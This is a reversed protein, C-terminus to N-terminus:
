QIFIFERTNLLAWILNGCGTAKDDASMIEQIALARDDAGPRRSLVALYVVDIAERPAHSTVEDYIVSGQELMAHTIPGNFMALIQPITAVTRGGEITERDSQGFQRLFHGLPLPTPLESARVLELGRYGCVQMMRRKAPGKGYHGLFRELGRDVDALSATRLDVNMIGAVEATTPRQISWPNRAVLTLISDWLQEATMRKLAPGPFRFPAASMTDHLVARRQYVDTSVVIRVFERLDFDLRLMEDTLHELLMPDSAPNDEKFDDGPEVLGVGMLKKWLRNAITRAFQRNDRAVVWAAFQQRGDARRVAEPVEGWLVKPSVATLPKADDYQYDHPLLLKKDAFAVNTVNARLYQAVAAKNKQNRDRNALQLDRAARAAESGSAMVRREKRGPGPGGPRTQTGATLAALEYFERQTWHDFPHDHCQACGIQTGLFVRVTNDVYPLPMGEDRLQFGVAPNEWLRGDATLMERVWTDYPKNTRISDKVYDLYPEFVLHKDPREQLRLIDAWFNYFHSVYDPSELLRDILEARKDAADSRLFAVLEDHTPIRGALELYVRRAFADDELPRTPEVGHTELGKDVLADVARAAAAVAPRTGRDVPQVDIPKAPPDQTVAEPLRMQAVARRPGKTASKGGAGLAAASVVAVCVVGVTRELWLRSASM